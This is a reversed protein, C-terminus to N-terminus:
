LYASWPALHPVFGKPYATREILYAEFVAVKDGFKGAEQLAAKLGERDKGRRFQQTRLLVDVIGDRAWYADVRARVPKKFWGFLTM